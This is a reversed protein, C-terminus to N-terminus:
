CQPETFLNTENSFFLLPSLYATLSEKTDSIYVLFLVSLSANVFPLEQIIPGHADIQNSFQPTMPGPKLIPPTTPELFQVSPPVNCSIMLSLTDHLSTNNKIPRCSM